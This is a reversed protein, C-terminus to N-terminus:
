FVAYSIKVHSSNLRTSKRDLPFQGPQGLRHLDDIVFMKDWMEKGGVFLIKVHNLSKHRGLMTQPLHLELGHCGRSPKGLNDPYLSQFEVPHLPTLAQREPCLGAEGIDLFLIWFRERQKNSKRVSHIM